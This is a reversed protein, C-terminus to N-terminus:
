RSPTRACRPSAALRTLKVDPLPQDAFELTVGMQMGLSWATVDYPPEPPLGPARMSVLVQVPAVDPFAEIILELRDFSLLMLEALLGSFQLEENRCRSLLELLDPAVQPPMENIEYM